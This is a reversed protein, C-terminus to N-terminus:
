LDRAHQSFAHLYAEGGRQLGAQGNLVIGKIPVVRIQRKGRTPTVAMWLPIWLSTDVSVNGYM